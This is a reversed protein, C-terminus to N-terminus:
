SLAFMKLVVPFALLCMILVCMVAGPIHMKESDANAAAVAASLQEDRTSKARARVPGYISAGDQGSMRAFDSVDRLLPIRLQTGLDELSRWPSTKEMRARLLADQLRRFSWSSGVRAADELAQDVAINSALRLAVLELYVTIAHTFEERARAADRRVMLDPVFWLVVAAVLGAVAPVFLPLTLDLLMWVMTLLSPLVLGTFALLVKNLVFQEVPQNLLALDTRPLPTPIRAVLWTGIVSEPRSQESVRASPAPPNLRRLAPGLKPPAPVLERVVLALGAGVLCGFFVVPATSNM